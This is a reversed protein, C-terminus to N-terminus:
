HVVEFLHKQAIAINFAQQSLHLLSHPIARRCRTSSRPPQQFNKLSISEQPCLTSFRLLTVGARQARELRLPYFLVCLFAKFCPHQPFAFVCLLKFRVLTVSARQARELRLPYFLVCLFAKFRPPQPFAFVCLLKFRVLTVGARQARELRLPYLM